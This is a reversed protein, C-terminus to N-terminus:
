REYAKIPLLGELTTIKLPTYGNELSFTFLKGELKKLKDLDTPIPEWEQKKNCYVGIIKELCNLELLNLFDWQATTRNFIRVKGKEDLYLPGEYLQNTIDHKFFGLTSKRIPERIIDLAHM